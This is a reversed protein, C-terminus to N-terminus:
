KKFVRNCTVTSVDLKHLVHDIDGGKQRQKRNKRTKSNRKGGIANNANNAMKKNFKKRYDQYLADPILGEIEGPYLIANCTPEWCKGFRETGFEKNKMIIANELDNKCILLDKHDKGGRLDHHFLYLPNEADGADELGIICTGIYVITPRLGIMPINQYNTNNNRTINPRINPFNSSSINFKKEELIKKIKKPERRLPANWVEEILEDLADEELKTDIDDQLELAYERLRRFRAVKEEIGGGGFKKCNETDFFVQNDGANIREEINSAIKSLPARDASASVLKFHKHHETVRGCITCWEVEFHDEYREFAYKEYLEKNYHHGTKACNHGMIFMCGDSREVFDLCIPCTTWETPAEFFADYKEIDAKSSGKWKKSSKPKLLNAIDTNGNKIAIDYATEGKDNKLNINIQPYTLLIKVRNIYDGDSSKMLLTMGKDNQSNIDAGAGLLANLNLKFKEDTDLIPDYIYQLPTEGYVDRIDVTPNKALILKLISVKELSAQHLASVGYNNQYNIDIKGSLLLLKIIQENNNKIASFLPSEYHNKDDISPDAKKELLMELIKVKTIDNNEAKVCYHLATMGQRDTANIHLDPDHILNFVTEAYKLYPRTTMSCAYMLATIGNNDPINIDAYNDLLEEVNDSQGNISAYILATKGSDDQLNPNANNKLLAHVINFNVNKSEEMLATLGRANKENIDGGISDVFGKIEKTFNIKRNLRDYKKLFKFISISNNAM